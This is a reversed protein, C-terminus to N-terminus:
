EALCVEGADGLPNRHLYDIVQNGHKPSLVFVIREFCSRLMLRFAAIHEILANGM